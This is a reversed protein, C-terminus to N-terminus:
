GADGDFDGWGADIAQQMLHRASNLSPIRAQGRAAQLNGTNPKRWIFRYGKESDPYENDDIAKEDYIYNCWQLCLRWGGGHDMWVEKLIQVRTTM